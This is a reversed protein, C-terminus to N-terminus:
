IELDHKVIYLILNVSVFNRGNDTTTSSVKDVIEFSNHVDYIAQALAAGTSSEMEKMCLVGKRKVLTNCDMWHVTMGLFSRLFYTFFFLCFKHKIM